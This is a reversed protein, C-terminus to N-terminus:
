LHSRGVGFQDGVAIPLKDRFDIEMVKESQVQSGKEDKLWAVIKKTKADIIEGTSPYAYDGRVTFTIWGPQDVALAVSQKYAPPTKTLDFIHMHQNPSDCVWVEADDPTIGIGHSVTGHRLAVGATFGPVVVRYLPKGTTLEGGEFGLLDNVNVVVLNRSMSVSFPRIINGFPGVKESDIVTHTKSDVSLLTSSMLGELYIRTGGPPALTNHSQSNTVLTDVVAGTMANM